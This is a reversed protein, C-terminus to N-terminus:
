QSGVADDLDMTAGADELLRAIETHGTAAAIMLATTREEDELDKGAGAAVLIRAIEVHGEHAAHMLATMGDEDQLDKDAGAELLLRVLEAHGRNAARSLATCGINDWEESSSGEAVESSRCYDRDAGAQLLLRAVELFGGDAAYCVLEEAAKHRQEATVATRLVMTLESAKVPDDDRLHDGDCLLQQLCLPFGHLSRLRSKLERVDRFDETAFNALEEGSIGRVCPM